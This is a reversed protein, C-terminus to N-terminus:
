IQPGSGCPGAAASEDPLRLGATVRVERRRCDPCLRLIQEKLKPQLKEKLRELYVVPAYPRGCRACSQMTLEAQWNEVKWRGNELTTRIAGTPCVHACAECGLCVSAALGFPTLMKKHIGRYAAGIGGAGVLEGCVRACLGCLICGPEGTEAARFRDKRAGYREALRNLAPSEPARSLLLELILKREKRVRPTDTQVVLGERAPFVCAADIWSGPRGKRSMEVICVRCSGLPSLAPHHCLTPIDIGLQRAAELVTAEAGVEVARGDIEVQVRKAEEM